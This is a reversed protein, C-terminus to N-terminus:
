NQAGGGDVVLIGWKRDGLDEGGQSFNHGIFGLNSYIKTGGYGPCFQWNDICEWVVCLNIFFVLLFADCSLNSITIKSGPWSVQFYTNSQSLPRKWFGPMTLIPNEQINTNVAGKFRNFVLNYAGSFRPTYSLLKTCREQMTWTRLYKPTAGRLWHVPFEAWQRCEPDEWGEVGQQWGSHIINVFIIFLHGFELIYKKIHDLDLYFPKSLSPRGRHHWM